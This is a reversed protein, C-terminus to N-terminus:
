EILTILYEHNSDQCQCDQCSRFSDAMLWLESRTIVIKKAFFFFSKKWIGFLFQTICKFNFTDNQWTKNRADHIHLSMKHFSGEAQWVLYKLMYEIWILSCSGAPQWFTQRFLWTFFSGYESLLFVCSIDFYIETQHSKLTQKLEINGFKCWVISHCWFSLPVRTARLPWYSLVSLSLPMVANNPM